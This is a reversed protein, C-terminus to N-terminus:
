LFQWALQVPVEALLITVGIDTGGTGTGVGTLTIWDGSNVVLAGVDFQAQRTFGTGVVTLTSAAGNFISFTDTGPVFGGGAVAINTVSWIFGPDPGMADHAHAPEGISWAGSAGAVRNTQGGAKRFKVGRRLEERWGNLMGAAIERVEAPTAVEVDVGANIKFVAM